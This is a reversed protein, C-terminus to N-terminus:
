DCADIMLGCPDVVTQAKTLHPVIEFFESHKVLTVVLTRSLNLKVLEDISCQHVNEQDILENPFRSLNPEVVYIPVALCKSALMKTIELAPSERTDETDPKYVIGLILLRDYAERLLLQLTEDVIKQPKGGNVMRACNILPANGPSSAALLWPDVAICHGGVGPGPQLINVRPHRNALRILECVDVNRDSCIAALENAYAINVDRYSNEALKVLEATDISTTVIRGNVFGDYLEVARKAATETEAGVVRDNAVFEEVMRGPMVREPCYVVDFHPVNTGLPANALYEERIWAGVKLTTGPACTSELVILENGTLVRSIDRSAREIFSNDPERGENVPTPVAIVFAKAAVVENAFSLRETALVDKLLDDFQPERFTTQGRRLSGIRDANIDIGCVNLGSKAMFVATPLGIYGMGIVCVDFDAAKECNVHM